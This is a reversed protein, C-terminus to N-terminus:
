PFRGDHRTSGCSGRRGARGKKKEFCLGNSPWCVRGLITLLKTRKQVRSQINANALGKLQGTTKQRKSNHELLLWDWFAVALKGAVIGSLLSWGLKKEERCGNDTVFAERVGQIVPAGDVAFECDSRQIDGVRGCGVGGILPIICCSSKCDCCSLM